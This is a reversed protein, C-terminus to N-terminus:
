EEVRWLAWTVGECMCSFWTGGDQIIESGCDNCKM